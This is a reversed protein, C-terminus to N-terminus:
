WFILPSLFLNPTGINKFDTFSHSNRTCRRHCASCRSQPCCPGLCATSRDEFSQWEPTRPLHRAFLRYIRMTIESEYTIDIFYLPNLRLLRPHLYTTTKFTFTNTAWNYGVRQLGMSQLGGPKETWPIRWAPISSHTAMGQELPDEQGLSQVWTEWMAPLNMVM